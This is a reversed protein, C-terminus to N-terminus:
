IYFDLFKNLSNQEDVLDSKAISAQMTNGISKFYDYREQKEIVRNKYEYYVNMINVITGVKINSHM